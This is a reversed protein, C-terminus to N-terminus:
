FSLRENRSIPTILVFKIALMNDTTFTPFSKIIMGTRLLLQLPTMEVYLLSIELCTLM